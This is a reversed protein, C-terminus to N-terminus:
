IQIIVAEKINNYNKGKQQKMSLYLPLIDMKIQKKMNVNKQYEIIM